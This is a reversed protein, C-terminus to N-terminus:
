LNLVIIQLGITRLYNLHDEIKIVLEDRGVDVSRTPEKLVAADAPELGRESRYEHLAQVVRVQLDSPSTFYGVRLDTRLRERFAKLRLAADGSDIWQPPWPYDDDLVFALLPIGAERATSFEFETVSVDGGPLIAGYRHGLVLVMLDSRRVQDRCIDRPAEASAGFQEMLVPVQGTHLIATQVARRYEELDGFTSSVYVHLPKPVM